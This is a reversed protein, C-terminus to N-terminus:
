PVRSITRPPTGNLEAMNPRPRSPRCPLGTEIRHVRENTTRLAYDDLFVAYKLENLRKYLPKWEVHHEVADTHTVDFIITGLNEERIVALVGVYRRGHDFREYRQQIGKDNYFPTRRDIGRLCEGDDLWGTRVVGFGVPKSRLPDLRYAVRVSVKDGPLDYSNDLRSAYTPHDLKSLAYPGLCLPVPPPPADVLNGVQVAAEDTVEQRLVAHRVWAWAAARASRPHGLAPQTGRILSRLDKGLASWNAGDAEGLGSVDMVLAGGDPRSHVLLVGHRVRYPLGSQGGYLTQQYFVKAWIEEGIPTATPGLLCVRTTPPFWGSAAVATVLDDKGLDHLLGPSAVKAQLRRTVHLGVRDDLLLRYEGANLREFAVGRPIQVTYRGVYIRRQNTPHELAMGVGVPVGVILLMALLRPLRRHQGGSGDRQPGSDDPQGASRPAPRHATQRV